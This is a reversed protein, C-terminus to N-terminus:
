WIIEEKLFVPGDKCVRKGGSRTSCTCGMCAGFGCAMREELSYQGKASLESLAKLMAKPGCALIYSNEIDLYEEDAIEKIVDIVTGKTGLSGDVTSIHIDPRIGYASAISEFEDAGFVESSNNFGLIVKPRMGIKLAVEYCGMMPPVGVGGGVLLAEEDGIKNLDFGNGLPLLINLKEGSKLESLRSTGGGVIKYYLSMSNKDVRAVSIPRRLFFGDIAINVFQGPNSFDSVDGDLVIRFTRDAVKCNEKVVFSEERMRSNCRQM